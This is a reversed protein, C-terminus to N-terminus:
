KTEESLHVLDVFHGGAPAAPAMRVISEIM